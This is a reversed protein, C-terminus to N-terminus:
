ERVMDLIARTIVARAEPPLRRGGMARHAWLGDAAIRALFHAMAVPDDDKPVPPAWHDILASWVQTQREDKISELMMLLEARTADRTCSQIYATYRDSPSEPDPALARLQEEWERALHHHTALILEERSPFHYIIGGRTIGTEAAVADFTVATFGDREILRVVAALIKDRNSERM